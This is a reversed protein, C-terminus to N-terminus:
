RPTILPRPYVSMMFSGGIDPTGDSLDVNHKPADPRPLFPRGFETGHAGMWMVQSM